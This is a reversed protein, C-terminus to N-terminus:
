PKVKKAVAILNAETIVETRNLSTLSSIYLKYVYNMIRRFLTFFPTRLGLNRVHVGKLLFLDLTGFKKMLQRLSNPTVLWEHTWDGYLMQNAAPSMGNPTQIWLYGEFSLKDSVLDLIKEFDKKCFHETIDRLIFLKISSPELNSLYEFLDGTYLNNIGSNTGFLISEEDSDVGASNEYGLSQLWGVVQGTSCAVDIIKENSSEPLYASFLSHFKTGRSEWPKKLNESKNKSGHTDLYNTM